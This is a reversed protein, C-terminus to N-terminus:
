KYKNNKKLWESQEETTMAAAAEETKKKLNLLYDHVVQEKTTKVALFWVRDQDLDPDINVVKDGKFVLNIFYIKDFRTPLKTFDVIYYNNDQDSVAVVSFRGAFDVDKYKARFGPDQPNIYVEQAMLAALSGFLLLVTLFITKM